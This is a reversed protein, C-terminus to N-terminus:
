VRKSSNRRSKRFSQMATLMSCHHATSFGMLWCVFEPNLSGKSEAGAPSGNWVQRGLLGSVPVNPTFTGDKHDRSTPTSLLAEPYLEPHVQERLNAPATRGPRATNFQKKMAEPSRADMGDMTNPTAWLAAQGSLKPEGRSNLKGKAREVADDAVPTQWMAVQDCLRFQAPQGNERHTIGRKALDSTGGQGTDPSRWLGCDTEKTRRVSVALQCYRRGRPTVKEKWIMQSKMWGDTPFLAQLRNELFSQLTVSESSSQGSQGCTDKTQAAKKNEPSPSRSAPAPVQGFLDPTRGDPKDSPSAGGASGQSGTASSSDKSM